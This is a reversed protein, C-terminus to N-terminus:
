LGGKKIILLSLYDLQDADLQDINDVVKENSQGCRSIVISKEKLHLKDLISYVTKFNRSLKMIVINDFRKLVEKLSDEDEVESIVALNEDEVALPLNCAAACASISTIGPITEIGIDTISKQIRDIIYIYTSYLSPDGITIFALNKGRDLQGMIKSVAMDRAKSLEQEQYTMPFILRIVRGRYDIKQKIIGLALSDRDERTQPVCIYDVKNLVDVARLTLLNPDGPGVGVGYLKGSM